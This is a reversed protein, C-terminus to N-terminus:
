IITSQNPILLDLQWQAAPRPGRSVTHDVNRNETIHFYLRKTEPKIVRVLNAESRLKLVCGEHLAQLSFAAEAESNAITVTKQLPKLTAIM